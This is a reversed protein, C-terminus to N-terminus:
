SNRYRRMLSSVNKDRLLRYGSKILHTARAHGRIDFTGRLYFSDAEFEPHLHLQYRYVFPLASIAGLIQGTTAPDETGFSVDAKVKRPSYHELLYRLERFLLVVASRNVEDRIEKKIRSVLGKTDKAKEKIIEWKSKIMGPLAKLKQFFTKIKEMIGSANREEKAKHCNEKTKHSDQANSATHGFNPVNIEAQDSEVIAANEGSSKEKKPPNKKERKRRTRPQEKERKRWTFGFITLKKQLERNDLIGRWRICGLLWSATIQIHIDDQAEGRIRYRVPVVLVALMALLLVGLLVLLAIGIIKLILIIISMPEGKKRQTSAPM